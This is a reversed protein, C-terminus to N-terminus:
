TVWLLSLPSHVSPSPLSSVSLCPPLLSPPARARRTLVSERVKRGGAWPPWSATAWSTRGSSTQRSTMGSSSQVGHWSGRFLCSVHPSCGLSSGRFDDMEIDDWQFEPGHRVWPAGAGRWCLYACVHPGRAPSGDQSQLARAPPSRHLSFICSHPLLFPPFRCFDSDISGKGKM